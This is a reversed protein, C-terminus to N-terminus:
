SVPAWLESFPRSCNNWATRIEDFSSPQDDFRQDFACEGAVTVIRIENV